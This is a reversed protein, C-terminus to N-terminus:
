SKTVNYLTINNLLLLIQKYKPNEQYQQITTGTKFRTRLRQKINSKSMEKRHEREGSKSYLVGPSSPYVCEGNIKDKSLLREKEGEIEM